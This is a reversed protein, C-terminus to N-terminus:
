SHPISNNRERAAEAKKLAKWLTGPEMNKLVAFEVQTSIEGRELKHEYEALLDENRKTKPKPGRKKAAERLKSTQKSWEGTPLLIDVHARIRFHLRM